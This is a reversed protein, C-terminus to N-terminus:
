GKYDLQSYQHINSIVKGAPDYTNIGPFVNGTLTKVSFKIIGIADRLLDQNLQNNIKLRLADRRLKALLAKLNKPIRRSNVKEELFFQVQPSCANDIEIFNQSLREEALIIEELHSLDNNLLAEKKELSVKILKELVKLEKEILAVLQGDM